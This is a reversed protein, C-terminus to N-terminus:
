LAQSVLEVLSYLKMEENGEQIADRFNSECWPCSTVLGEAGTAKAEEVREQAAWLAFDPYASKVGGGSGCCWSYEKIRQMDILTVGPINNLINRPPDYVGHTGRRLEKPPDYIGFQLRKGEWPIHPESRRGLHCPDHWTVKLPLKKTFKLKGKTILQDIYEVVHLVEFQMEGEKPYDAKFASYCGSCSVVIKSIGLENFTKINAKAIDAFRKSDGIRAIPSGCCVEKKGLIGLDVGAKLLLTATERPVTKLEPKYAYTCGVFYLVDAKEKNLDKVGIERAWRDRGTRPQMWVNDYNGVSDIIAKHPPLPGQGDEIVRSRLEELILLPDLDNFFKCMVDCAGCLTCKYIVELLKPSDKYDLEGEIIARAIDLRGQSSYADFFYKANSPCVRSFRQQKMVWPHVFKCNSCRVCDWVDRRYDELAM